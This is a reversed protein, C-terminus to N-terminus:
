KGRTCSVCVSINLVFWGVLFVFCFVREVIQTMVCWELDEERSTEQVLCPDLCENQAKKVRM